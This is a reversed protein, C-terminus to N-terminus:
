PPTPPPPDQVGCRGFWRRCTGYLGHPICASGPAPIPTDIFIADKRNTKFAYGDEFVSCKVTRGDDTVAQGFWRRCTGRVTGDPMCAQNGEKPIYIADSPGATNVYGDDFVFFRVPQNSRLAYCRGFWKRCIGFQPGPICAKGQENNIARGSIFIADSPGSSNTYGDDFVFCEVYEYPELDPPDPGPGQGTPAGVCQGAVCSAGSPCVNDIQGCHKPNSGLDIDQVQTLNGLADYDYARDQAIACRSSAVGIFFSALLLQRSKNMAKWANANWLPLKGVYWDIRLILRLAFGSSAQV